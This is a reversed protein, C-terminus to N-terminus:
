NQRNDAESHLVRKTQQLEMNQLVCYWVTLQLCWTHLLDRSNNFWGIYNLLKGPPETTFFGCSFAPSLNLGQRLFIRQLPFHCGVGALIIRHVPSCWLIGNMQGWLITCSQAYVLFLIISIKCGNFSLPFLVRSMPRPLFNKIIACFMFLFIFSSKWTKDTIFLAAIFTWTYTKIHFSIKLEM